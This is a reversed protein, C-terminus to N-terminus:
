LRARPAGVAVQKDAGGGSGGSSGGGSGISSGGGSGSSGETSSSGRGGDGNSGSQRNQVEDLLGFLLRTYEKTHHKLHACHASQSCSPAPCLHVPVLLLAVSRTTGGELGGVAQQM